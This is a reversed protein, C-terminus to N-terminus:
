RESCLSGDYCYLSVRLKDQNAILLSTRLEFVSYAIWQVPFIQPKYASEFFQSFRSSAEDHCDTQGYCSSLNKIFNPIQTNKSFRDRFNM